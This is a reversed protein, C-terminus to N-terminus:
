CRTSSKTAYGNRWHSIADAVYLFPYLLILLLALFDAARGKPSPRPYKTEIMFRSMSHYRSSDRRIVCSDFVHCARLSCERDTAINMTSYIRM